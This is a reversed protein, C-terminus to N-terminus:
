LKVTLKTYYFSGNIGMQTADWLGGSDTYENQKTPYINLLNHAGFQLDIIRNIKFSFHLDTTIRPQYIDTAAALRESASNNFNSLNKTVQWDILKIESFRTFNLSTKFRKYQYNVGLNFKSNPASALLFQQEREGFFTEKDLLKNNIDTIIMHNINGSLDFSLESNGMKKRWNLVLDIGKTETDVGNAFFQVNDVGLGLISADFNGSLIIRDKIGVYYGDLTVNFTPSVKATLGLSFNIAKEEKLEDINFRRAIPSNNAVLISETPTDGIFNTFTLNYYNQALSPARFGTSFSGRLNIKKTIKYRSALKYNLTSGFDTYYELRLAAGIMFKESFDVETDLYVGFNSRNRDVENQPSYGPFGQSGGPRLDGNYTQYESAPTQANVVDGNVDYSSYSGEEGSFIKYKDLRYELGVAVNFGYSKELFYKSFDISTTNQILQHGGADFEKPSNEELTTNVTNKIFYHFNNRGLTNNIDINWEKFETLMGFSFSNDLITSTILPNFGTPYFDLVNRASNAPRTFAYAETNKHNFGGNAYLKTNKYIPIEANFFVSVNKVGAQGFKERATTGPRITNDTSLAEATFNVFGGKNIKAGYNLGLKYTFGDVKNPFINDNNANNFGMTSSVTLEDDADKLVINIVGAIADSGYQASAGDRLLEIRKIASIPIANLDTGSNGRGRTGYLNILSAQHRRKGNILVLTQDPGLGRLTAPDIHDAGDAGSQKTANFSPIVYQLFQNLEVQSSKSATKEIDIFDIAVPTDNAVRNKNRSGVIKVEELEQGAVLTITHFKNPTLKLTKTNHGLFCVTVLHNQNIIFEFTGDAKTTIGVLSGEEQLTAGSLPTNDSSLVIGKIMIKARSYVSDAMFNAALNLKEKLTAKKDDLQKKTYVVYYNNGLDDFLLSTLKQLLSISEELSLNAFGEEQIFNNSLLNANYTFFVKHKDSIQELLTALPIPQKKREQAVNTQFVFLGFFLVLFKIIISKQNM